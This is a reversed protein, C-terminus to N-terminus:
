GRHTSREEAGLRMGIARLGFPFLVREDETERRRAVGGRETEIETQREDHICSGLSPNPNATSSDCTRNRKRGREEVEM